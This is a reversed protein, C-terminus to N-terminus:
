NNAAHLNKNQLGDEIVRNIDGLNFYLLKGLKYSRVKGTMRLRDVLDRKCDLYNMVERMSLYMKQVPMVMTKCGKQVEAKTVNMM